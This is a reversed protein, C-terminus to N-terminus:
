SLGVIHGVWIVGIKRKKKDMLKINDMKGQHGDVLM